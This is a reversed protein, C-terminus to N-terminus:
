SVRLSFLYCIDSSSWMCLRSSTMHRTVLESVHEIPSKVVIQALSEAAVFRKRVDVVLDNLRLPQLFQLVPKPSIHRPQMLQQWASIMFFRPGPGYRLGSEHLIRRQWPQIQQGLPRHRRGHCMYYMMSNKSANYTRWTKQRLSHTLLRFWNYVQRM